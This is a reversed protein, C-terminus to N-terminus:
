FYRFESVIYDTQMIKLSWEERAKKLAKTSKTQNMIKLYNLINKPNVTLTVYCPNDAHETEHYGM